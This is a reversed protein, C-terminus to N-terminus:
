GLRAAKQWWEIAKAEDQTVGQGNDYLVGISTMAWAEGADAAKRYWRMAEAYDQMVGRGNHYLRGINGMAGAEGADAAERFWKMAEAYDQTVGQGNAYLVGINGRAGAEGADAAKRYWRMAEAYDQTVGKGNHYLLGINNMALAEGADAAKRYWKMAEAYDKRRYHDVGRALLVRASAARLALAERHQAEDALVRTIAELAGEHDQKAQRTKADGLNAAVRSAREQAEREAAERRLRAERQQPTELPHKELAAVLYDPKLGGEALDTYVKQRAQRTPDLSERPAQLLTQGESALELPIAGDMGMARVRRLRERVVESEAIVEAARNRIREANIALLFKSGFQGKLQPQQDGGQRRASQTTRDKAFSWLEDLEIVGDRNGQADAGGRLGQILQWAFASHGYGPDSKDGIVVSLQDGKSATLGVRGDGQFEPYLKNLDILSKSKQDLNATAASYCADIITVLRTTKIEGLLETIDTEPLATARLKDPVTDHMVWYARGREDTAGHGSFFVVVLDQPGAKRALEDLADKLATDTVQEDVMVTVNAAPFLGINPDRLTDAFVRADNPCAPLAPIRSDRFKGVGVVLALREPPRQAAPVTADVAEQLSISKQAFASAACICALLLSAVCPGAWATWVPQTRGGQM